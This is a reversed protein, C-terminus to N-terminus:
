FCFSINLSLERSAELIDRRLRERYSKCDRYVELYYEYAEPYDKRILGMVSSRNEGKLNMTDVLVEGTGAAALESLIEELRDPQDSFFPLVPGLFVWPAYGRSVLEELAGLRRKTSPAGPEFARRVEEDLTTVTIGLDRVRCRGLVDLDRLVLDSKTLVSVDFDTGALVELCRRTLQYKRELPQYPDTVTSFNVLGPRSKKIQKQLVLPANAKVEVFTGWEGRIHAFRKLFVAYCYLCGHGCGLYPNVTYDIGPIRSRNLISKCEVEIVEPRMPSPCM